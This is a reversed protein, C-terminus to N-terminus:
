KIQFKAHIFGKYIVSFIDTNKQMVIGKEKTQRRGSETANDKKRISNRKSNNETKSNIAKSVLNKLFM